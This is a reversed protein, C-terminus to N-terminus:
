KGFGFETGFMEAAGETVIRAGVAPGRELVAITDLVYKVQVRRRTFKHEGVNEYVWTGGNIDHVVASWPIVLSEREDRLALNANVRQGPRLKGDGNEVQYYLDVTSALVTATPPASVPKAVIPTDDNREELGSLRAPQEVDIDRVEGVYIPVKVWVVSTNMVEFLPAGAAVAEGATATEVRIIGDQPAEILLPNLAGGAEEISLSDVLKKQAAAAKYVEDAVNLAARADDVARVTGADNKQLRQARELDIKAKELQAKAQGVLGDASTQAQGLAIRAQVEALREGPPRVDKEASLRPVLRYIPQGKKVQEGVKPIGGQKPSELFGAQPATVILSGGTPLTVEGGYMRMRSVARKEVAVTVIGLRQEAEPKLEFTNLQDEKPINPVNAPAVPKATASASKHECGASIAALLMLAAALLADRFHM